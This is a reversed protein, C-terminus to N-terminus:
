YEACSDYKMKLVIEDIDKACLSLSPSEFHLNMQRGDDCQLELYVPRTDYVYLLGTWIDSVGSDNVATVSTVYIGDDTDM